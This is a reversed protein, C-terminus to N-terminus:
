VKEKGSKAKEIAKEEGSKERLQGRFQWIGFLTFTNWYLALGAPFRFSMWAIMLPFILMMQKQMMAQMNPEKDKDKDKDGSSKQASPMMKNNLYAQYFQLGGTIIPILLYWWGVTQWESPSKTLDLGLWYVNLSTVYLFPFYMVKNLARISHSSQVLKNMANYLGFFIPFQVLATLCGAGPNVKHEKYLARQAQQLKMPDKKYKKQLKALQPQIKQMQKSQEIQKKMLPSIALRISATMTIISWGLPGPIHLLEFINYFFMLLNMLPQVLLIEFINM